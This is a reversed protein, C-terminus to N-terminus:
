AVLSLQFVAQKLGPAFKVLITSTKSKKLIISKESYRFPRRKHMYPLPLAPAPSYAAQDGLPTMDSRAAAM